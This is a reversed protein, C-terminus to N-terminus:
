TVVPNAYCYLCGAKCPQDYTGIDRSRTCGCGARQGADKAVSFKQNFVCGLTEGDICRSRFILRDDCIGDVVCAFTTIGHEENCSAIRRSIIKKESMSQDIFEIGNCRTAKRIRTMVKPYLHAFSITCRKVGSESLKRSIYEFDGTNDRRVTGDQWSCIPDFRWNIKKGYIATIRSAQDIREDLSTDIGPELFDHIEPDSYGNITFQFFQNFRDFFHRNELFVSYDKSWWVICGVRSPDLDVRYPRQNIPNVLEVHGREFEEIVDDIYFHPLDTRRSASIIDKVPM